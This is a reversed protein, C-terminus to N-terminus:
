RDNKSEQLAIVFVGISFVGFVIGLTWWIWNANHEDAWASHIQMFSIASIFAALVWVLFRLSTPVATIIRYILKM